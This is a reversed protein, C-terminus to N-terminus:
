INHGAHVRSGALQRRAASMFGGDDAAAPSAPAGHGRAVHYVIGLTTLLAATYTLTGM